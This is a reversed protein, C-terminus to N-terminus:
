YEFSGEQPVVKIDPPDALTPNNEFLQLRNLVNRGSELKRRDIFQGEVLDLQNLLMTERMLHPEGEVNVFIQGIKWRDGESIKYVLDVRDPEDRMVPQPQVECYIFGLTGYSYTLESVDLNMKMGSFYDGAKLTLRERLQAEDVFENGVIQIDNIIYRENEVIVFTVTLWQGSDDYEIQRSVHARLFGLNRYYRTLIDVDEDIQKLNAPNNIYYGFRMFPERSRIVKKLRADGEIENGVMNIKAIRELEGENIRFIVARPDKDHGIVSQIVANNFGKERYFDELRRVASEITFENLPDKPQLGSRGKLERDNLGRNGFYIVDSVTPLEVVDFIVVKGNAADEIRFRVDSFAGFERLARIDSMVLEEDFLRDVRTELKQLIAATSVFRNGRIQVDAVIATGKERRVRLGGMENVHDSFRPRENPPPAGGGGGGGAGGGGFQALATTALFFLSASFTLSIALRLPM